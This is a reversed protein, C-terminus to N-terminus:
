WGALLDENRLDVTTSEADRVDGWRTPAVFDPTAVLDVKDRRGFGQVGNESLRALEGDYLGVCRRGRGRRIGDIGDVGL